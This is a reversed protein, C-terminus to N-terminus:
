RGRMLYRTMADSAAGSTMGARWIGWERCWKQQGDSAPRDRWKASALTLGLAERQRVLDEGIGQAYELTLGSYLKKAGDRRSRYIERVCWGAGEPQLALTSDGLGLLYRPGDEIWHLQHLTWMERDILDVDAAAAAAATDTKKAAAAELMAEVGAEATKVTVGLLEALTVQEAGAGDTIDLVLLGDPKSPHLRTGRGIMQQYLGRSKTPRAVVVCSVAPEDYGELLVGCNSVGVLEGRSFKALTSRRAETDDTGTVLGWPVGAQNFKVAVEAALDVTPLFTITRRGRAERLWAAVVADPAGALELAAGLDGDQYDGGRVRVASLDLDDLRIQKSRVDCLYRKSIGWLLTKRYVVKDFVDTLDKGDARFPTATFGAIMPGYQEMAELVRLYSPAPAHHAEDVIVTQIGEADSLFEALRKDRSLTQVSAVVIRQDGENQEAKVVGVEEALEPAVMKLKDVAQRILEDRHALILARGPRRRILESFIITKGLGTPLAVLPKQVGCTALVDLCEQQYPRLAFTM